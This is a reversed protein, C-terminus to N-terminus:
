ECISVYSAGRSQLNIQNYWMCTFVLMVDLSSIRMM